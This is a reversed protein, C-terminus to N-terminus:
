RVDLVLTGAHVADHHVNCLTVLNNATNRGGAAHEVIHHLELFNRPDDPSAQDRSWGCGSQRCRFSDRRLVEIRVPDPIRRDHAPAQRDVELMYTGLPIDPRGQGQMQTLIPWGQETRLERVRRAWETADKAVYRLQEGTIPVGIRRRLVSLVKEQVSARSSRVDNLVRWNEAAQENRTESTLIYDDVGAMRTDLGFQRGIETAEDPDAERLDNLTAGSIISWGDEVRLERVRRAWDDIGGVVQLEPGTVITRAYQQLYALMRAKGSGYGPMLSSGADRIAHVVPVFTEVRERLPTEQPLAAYSRLAELAVAAAASADSSPRSRRAM